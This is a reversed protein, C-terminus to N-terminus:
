MTQVLCRAFWTVDFNATAGSLSLFVRQDRLLRARGSWDRVFDVNGYGSVPADVPASGQAIIGWRLVKSVSDFFTATDPSLTTQFSEDDVHMAYFVAETATPVTVQMILLVRLLKARQMNGATTNAQWQTPSLLEAAQASGTGSLTGTAFTWVYNARALPRGGFRRRGFRPKFSSSRRFAM